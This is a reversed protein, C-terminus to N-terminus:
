GAVANIGTFRACEVTAQLPAGNQDKGVIEFRGGQATPRFTSRGSGELKGGKITSIRHAKSGSQVSFRFQEEAGAAAPRWHRLMVSQSGEGAYDAMWLAAAVGYISARPEHGCNGNGRLTETRGGVTVTVKVPVETQAQAPAAWFAAGFMGVICALVTARARYAYM